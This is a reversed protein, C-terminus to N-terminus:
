QGVCVAGAVYKVTHHALNTVGVAWGSRAFPWTFDMAINGDDPQKSTRFTGSVAVPTSRPCPATFGTGTGAAVKYSFINTASTLNTCVSGEFSFVPTSAVNTMGTEFGDARGTFPFADALLLSGANAASQLGFYNDIAHPASRPCFNGVNSYGPPDSVTNDVRPYAFRANASLCVTGIIVGQPQNSRNAVQTFWGRPGQPYSSTLALSGLGARTVYDFIPGVPHPHSAPCQRTAM